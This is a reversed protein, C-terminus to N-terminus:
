SSGRSTPTSRMSCRPSRYLGRYSILRSASQDTRSEDRYWLRGEARAECRPVKARFILEPKHNSRTYGSGHAAVGGQGLRATLQSSRCNPAELGSASGPGHDRAFLVGLAAAIVAITITLAVWRRHRVVTAM